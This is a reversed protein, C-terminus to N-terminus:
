RPRSYEGNLLGGDGKTLNVCTMGQYLWKKPRGLHKVHTSVMQFKGSKFYFRVFEFADGREEYHVFDPNKTIKAIEDIVKLYTSPHTEALANLVKEEMYIAVGSTLSIGVAKEAAVSIRGIKIPGGSVKENM